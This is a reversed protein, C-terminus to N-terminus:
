KVFFQAAHYCNENRRNCRALGNIISGEFVVGGSYYKFGGQGRLFALLSNCNLFEGLGQM